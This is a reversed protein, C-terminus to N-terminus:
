AAIPSAGMGAATPMPPQPNNLAAVRAEEEHILSVCDTCFKEFWAQRPAPVRAQRAKLFAVTMTKLALKLNDMQMWREPPQYFTPGMENQPTKLYRKIQEEVWSNIEDVQDAFHDTDYSSYLKVMDSGSFPVSPDKMWKEAKELRSKPSDKGESVAKIELIYKDEDLDLDSSKV